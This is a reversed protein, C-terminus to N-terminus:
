MFSLCGNNNFKVGIKKWRKIKVQKKKQFFFQLSNSFRILKFWLFIALFNKRSSSSHTCMSFKVTKKMIIIKKKICSPNVNYLLFSSCQNSVFKLSNFSSLFYSNFNIFSFISFNKKILKIYIQNECYYSFNSFM